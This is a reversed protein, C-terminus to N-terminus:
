FDRGVSFYLQHCRVKIKPKKPLRISARDVLLAQDQFQVSAASDADDIYVKKKYNSTGMSFNYGLALDYKERFQTRFYAGFEGMFTMSGSTLRQGTYTDTGKEYVRLRNFTKLGIGLGVSLGYHIKKQLLKDIAIYPTFRADSVDQKAILSITTFDPQFFDSTVANKRRAYSIKIGYNVGFNRNLVELEDGLHRGFNICFGPVVKSSNNQLKNIDAGTDVIKSTGLTYWSLTPAISWYLSPHTEEGFLLTPLGLFGVSDYGQVTTMLLSVTFLVKKM